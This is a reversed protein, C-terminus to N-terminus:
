VCPAADREPQAFDLTVKIIQPQLEMEQISVVSMLSYAVSHGLRISLGPTLRGRQPDCPIRLAGHCDDWVGRGLGQNHLELM